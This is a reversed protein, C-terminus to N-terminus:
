RVLEGCVGRDHHPVAPKVAVRGGRDSAVQSMRDHGDRVRSRGARGRASSRPASPM